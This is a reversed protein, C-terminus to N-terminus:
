QWKVKRMVRGYEHDSSITKAAKSFANMVKETNPIHGAAGSLLNAKEYDSQLREIAALLSVWDNETKSGSNILAKLLTAREYDSGITKVATIVQEYNINKGEKKVIYAKLLGAKEYDSGISQLMSLFRPSEAFGPYRDVAEKLITSQYYDSGIGAVIQLLNDLPLDSHQAMAKNLVMAKEYDSSISKTAELFSALSAPPPNEKAILKKLLRGKYYDSTVNSQITAVVQKWEIDTLNREVLSELYLNRVYDSKKRSAESIVAQAGGMEYFRAARARANFGNDVLVQIMEKLLEKGEANLSSTEPENDVQYYIKGGTNTVALRKKRNRIRIYSGEAMTEIATEDENLTFSGAYVIEIDVTTNSIRIQRQDGNDKILYTENQGSSVLSLCLVVITLLQRM